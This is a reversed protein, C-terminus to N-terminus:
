SAPLRLLRDHTHFLGVIWAPEPLSPCVDENDAQWFPRATVTAWPGTGESSVAAVRIQQRRGDGVRGTLNRLMPYESNTDFDRPKDAM